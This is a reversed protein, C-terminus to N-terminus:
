PSKEKEPTKNTTQNSDLEDVSPPSLGVPALHANTAELYRREARQVYEAADPDLDYLKKVSFWISVAQEVEGKEFFKDARNLAQKVYELRDEDIEQTLENTLQDILRILALQESTDGLLTRLSTLLSKAESIRGQERLNMAQRIIAEPESGPLESARPSRGVLTKRLEYVEIEELYPAVEPEWRDEDLSLLIDFCERKASEWALGAPRNMLEVGRQFLDDQSPTNLISLAYAGAVLVVLLGLLVWVNDLLKGVTSSNKEADIQARFLDRVLTGGPDSNPGAGTDALTEDEGSVKPYSQSQQERLEVKRPVEKLRLSLVYADPYRSEPKKSLCQCVIEDLWFPIDPVLRKVSDFQAFRHKQIVDLASKGTFPPRGTLMVYMVAGLSYIDSHKTARAGQAQEPSMYEATGLIGGTATLKGSAFVQAVGFDALKVFGDERILLNSPKLDRHIVGSNHAAKLASCIQVGIDVVDRWPLRKERELRDALTEGAVYEMAYFFTDHDEGSEYLEVIHSSKLQKMAAIEREFRAVFGPERAMAAPLLKVAALEGTEKHRGLYVTGMGGSGLKKEIFYPGITAPIERELNPEEPFDSNTTNM